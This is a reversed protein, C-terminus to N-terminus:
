DPDIGAARLQAALRDARAAGAEARAAEADARAAQSRALGLADNIGPWPGTEDAVVLTPGGTLSIGLREVVIPQEASASVAATRWAGADGPHALLHEVRVGGPAFPDILIVEDVGYRRARGLRVRYQADTDDDSWVEFIIAPGIGDEDWTRWSKRDRKPRGFAVFVDPDLRIRTDTRDPFWALRCHVAVDAEDAFRSALGAWVLDTLRQHLAHEPVMEEEPALLM